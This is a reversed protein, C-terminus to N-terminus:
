VFSSDGNRALVDVLTAEVTAKLDPDSGWNTRRYLLDEQHLVAETDVLQCLERRLGAVAAASWSQFDAIRLAGDCSPSRPFDGWSRPHASSVARVAREAVARATTYKIGCLSVLGRPGSRHWHKHIVPRKTLEKSGPRITPLFGAYVRVVDELQFKRGRITSNLEAIFTQLQEESPRPLASGGSWPLHVTGALLKGHWPVLFYTQRHLESSEIALAAAATPECDFLVNFALSPHFLSPLDRDFSEAVQRSWPGACNVVVPARFEYAEGSEEDRAVVGAARGNDCILSRAAM